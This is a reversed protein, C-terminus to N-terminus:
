SGNEGGKKTYIRRYGFPSYTFGGGEYFKTFFEVYHLRISHLGASLVGLLLLLFHILFFAVIAAIGYPSFFAPVVLANVAVAVGAKAVGVAFLRIYSLLNSFVSLFEIASIFGEGAIVFVLGVIALPIIIAYTSVPLPIKAFLRMVAIFFATLVVIWGGKGVIHRYNRHHYENYMGLGFAFVLHVYGAILTANILFGIDVFKNILGTYGLEVGLLQALSAHAHDGHSTFPLGFIEGFIIGFIITTIGAYLLVNGVQRGGIDIIRHNRLYLALICLMLGYGIDGIILGFFLPFTIWLLSTPDIEENKPLSYMKTLVEFSKAPKPNVLKTPKEDESEVEIVSVDHSKSVKKLKELDSVPVWGQLVFSTEGVLMRQPLEEKAVSITLFEGTALLTERYKRLAESIRKNIETIERNLMAIRVAYASLIANFTTLDKAFPRAHELMEELKIERFHVGALVEKVAEEVERPYIVACVKEKHNAYIRANLNRERSVQLIDEEYFGVAVGLNEYPMLDGVELGLKGVKELVQREDTLRRIENEIKQKRETNELLSIGTGHIVGEIKELNKRLETEAKKETVEAGELKVREQLIRLKVLLESHKGAEKEPLGPELVEGSPVPDRIHLVALEHLADIYAQMRDKPGTLVVEVMKEPSLM